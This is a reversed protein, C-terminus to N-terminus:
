PRLTTGGRSFLKSARVLAPWVDLRLRNRAFRTDLNSDDEIHRLGHHAVYAEIAERRHALWPRLWREGVARMEVVAWKWWGDSTALRADVGSGAYDRTVM